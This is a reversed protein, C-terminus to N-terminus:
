SIVIGYHRDDFFERPMNTGFVGPRQCEVRRQSQTAESTAHDILSQPANRNVRRINESANRAHGTGSDDRAIRDNETRRATTGAILSGVIKLDRRGHEAPITSIDIYAHM